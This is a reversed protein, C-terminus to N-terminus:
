PFARNVTPKVCINQVRTLNQSLKLRLRYSQDYQLNALVLSGFRVFVYMFIRSLVITQKNVFIDGNLNFNCETMGHPCGIGCTPEFDVDKECSPIPTCYLTNYFMPKMHFCYTDVNLSIQVRYDWNKIKGGIEEMDEIFCWPGKGDQDPNRCYRHEVNRAFNANGAENSWFSSDWFSKMLIDTRNKVELKEEESFLTLQTMNSEANWPACEYGSRTMRHTGAYNLGISM